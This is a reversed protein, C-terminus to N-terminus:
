IQNRLTVHETAGPPTVTTLLEPLQSIYRFSQNDGAVFIKRYVSRWILFHVLAVFIRFYDIFSHM